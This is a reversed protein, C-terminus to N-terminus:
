ESTSRRRARKVPHPVGFSLAYLAWLVSGLKLRGLPESEPGLSEYLTLADAAQHAGVELWVGGLAFQHHWAVTLHHWHPLETRIGYAEFFTKAVLAQNCNPFQGIRVM